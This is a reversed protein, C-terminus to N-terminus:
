VIWYARREEGARAGLIDVEDWEGGIRYLRVQDEVGDIIQRATARLERYRAETTVEAEFVSLQVRPGFGSLFLALDARRGDDAVDYAILFRMM